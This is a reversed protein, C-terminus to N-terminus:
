KSAETNPAYLKYNNHRGPTNVREVNHFTGRQNLFYKKLDSPKKETKFTVM